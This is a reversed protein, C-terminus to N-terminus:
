HSMLVPLRAHYLVFETVGGFLKERLRSRSYGGMVLLNAEVENCARLINGGTEISDEATLVKPTATVGNRALHALLRAVIDGSTDSAAVILLTREAKELLPMADALARSSERSGNWAIVASTGAIGPVLWNPTILVPRGARLLLEHILADAPFEEDDERDHKNVVILGAYRAREVIDAIGGDEVLWWEYRIGRASAAAALEDRLRDSVARIAREHQAVAADIVSNRLQRPIQPRIEVRLGLLSANHRQAVDAAIRLRDHTHEFEDLFVLIDRLAM